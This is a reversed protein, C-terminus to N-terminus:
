MNSGNNGNEQKTKDDIYIVVEMYYQADRITDTAANVAIVGINSMHEVMADAILQLAKYREQKSVSLMLARLTIPTLNTQRVEPLQMSFPLLELPMEGLAQLGKRLLKILLKKM